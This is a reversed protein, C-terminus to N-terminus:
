NAYLEFLSGNIIIFREWDKKMKTKSYSVSFVCTYLRLINM